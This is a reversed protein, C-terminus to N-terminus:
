YLKICFRKTLTNLLHIEYSTNSLHFEILFQIVNLTNSDITQM